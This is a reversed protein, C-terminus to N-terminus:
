TSTTGSFLAILVVAGVILTTDVLKATANRRFLLFNRGLQIMFQKFASPKIPEAPLPFPPPAEYHSCKDGELSDFYHKWADYLAERRQKEGDAGDKAKKGTPADVVGDVRDGVRVSNDLDNIESDPEM